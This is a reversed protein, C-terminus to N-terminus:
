YSCRKAVASMWVDLGISRLRDLTLRLCFSAWIQMFNWRKDFLNGRRYAAEVKDGIAHALAMEAVERAVDTHEACWDKFTSRFGHSVAKLNMRRMVATLTMDSLMGGAHRPFCYRTQPMQCRIRCCRGHQKLFHCGTSAGQM